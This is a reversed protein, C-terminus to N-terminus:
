EIGRYGLQRQPRRCSVGGGVMNPASRLHGAVSARLTEVAAMDELARRTDENLAVLASRIGEERMTFAM